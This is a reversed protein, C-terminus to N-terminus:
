FFSYIEIRTSSVTPELGAAEVLFLGNRLPRKKNPRIRHPRSGVERVESHYRKTHLQYINASGRPAFQTRMDWGFIQFSAKLACPTSINVKPSFGAAEVMLLVIQVSPEKKKELPVRVGLPEGVARFYLRRRDGECTKPEATEKNEEPAEGCVTIM